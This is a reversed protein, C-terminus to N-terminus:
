ADRIWWRRVLSGDDMCLGADFVRPAGMAVDVCCQYGHNWSPSPGFTVREEFGCSPDYGSPFINSDVMFGVGAASLCLGFFGEGGSPAFTEADWTGGTFNKQCAEANAFLDLMARNSLVEISGVFGNQGLSPDVDDEANKIYIPTQPPARLGRLHARLRDPFFIYEAGAIVTWDWKKFRGDEWIKKFADLFVETGFAGVFEDKLEVTHNESGPLNPIMAVDVPYVEGTRPAEITMSENCGFIGVGNKKALLMRTEETSNPRYLMICFLSDGQIPKGAPM